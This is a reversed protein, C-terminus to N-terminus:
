AYHGFLTAAVGTVSTTGAVISFFGAEFDLGNVSLPAYAGTADLRGAPLIPVSTLTAASSNGYQLTHAETSAATTGGAVTFGDLVLSKQQGINNRPAAQQVVQAAATSFGGVFWGNRRSM